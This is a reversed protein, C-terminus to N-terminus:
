IAKGMVGFPSTHKVFDDHARGELNNRLGQFIATVLHSKKESPFTFFGFCHRSLIDRSPEINLQEAFSAKQLRSYHLFSSASM